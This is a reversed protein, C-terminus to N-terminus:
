CELTGRCAPGLLATRPKGKSHTSTNECRISGRLEEQTRQCNFWGLRRPPSYLTWTPSELAKVRHAWSQVAQVTRPPTHLSLSESSPMEATANNKQSYTGKYREQTESTCSWRGPVSRVRGFQRSNTATSLLLALQPQPNYHLFLTIQLM